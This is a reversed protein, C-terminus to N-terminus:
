NMYSSMYHMFSIKIVTNTKDKVVVFFLRECFWAKKMPSYVKLTYEMPAMIDKGSPSYKMPAMFYAKKM